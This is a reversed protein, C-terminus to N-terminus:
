LSSFLAKSYSQPVRTHLAESESPPSCPRATLSLFEQTCLRVRLPLLVLGQQLVSSSKHASGWEWLSSFLAKSYSQPVRTHLAESKSPPSCPRATLSLFEQTCVTVGLRLLVLGQQLVSSSKRTHPCHWTLHFVCGATNHHHPGHSPLPPDQRELYTSCNLQNAWRDFILIQPFVHLPNLQQLANPTFVIIIATVNTMNM